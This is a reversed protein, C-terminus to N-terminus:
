AHVCSLHTGSTRSIVNSFPSTLIKEVMRSRLTRLVLINKELDKIWVLSSEEHKAKSLFYSDLLTKENKQLKKILSSTWQLCIQPLEMRYWLFLNHDHMYIMYSTDTSKHLTSVQISLIHTHTHLFTYTQIYPHTVAQTPQIIWRFYTCM